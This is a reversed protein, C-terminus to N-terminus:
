GRSRRRRGALLGLAALGLVATSPEPVAALTLVQLRGTGTLLGPLTAASYTGPQIASGDVLLSLVTEPDGDVPFNLFVQGRNAGASVLTLGADDAIALPHDLELVTNTAAARVEVPGTGLTSGELVHLLGAVARTGGTYTNSTSALLLAGAGAKVLMNSTNTATGNTVAGTITTTNTVTLSKVATGFFQLGGQVEIPESGGFGADGGLSIPVLLANVGTLPVSGRISGANVNTTAGRGLGTGSALVVTPGVAGSGKALQVGGAFAASDAALVVTGDGALTTRTAGTLPVTVSLTAGAAVDASNFAAAGAPALEVTGANAADGVTLAAASVPNEVRLTAGTAAALGGSGTLPGRGAAVVFSGTARVTGGALTVGNAPDGLAADAGVALTGASATVGGTFTNAGSLVLTGPGTKNLGATGAVVATITATDGANTVLVNAAGAGGDLTLPNAATGAVTYGGVDFRLGRNVTIPATLTVTGAPATAFLAQNAASWVVPTAGNRWNTSANDWNGSGGVWGLKPIDVTVDFSLTTSAKLALTTNTTGAWTAAVAPDGGGVLLRFNGGSNLQGILYSQEAAGLTLTYTDTKSAATGNSTFAGTGILTRTPFQAGIGDPAADVQFKPATSDGPTISTATDDTLYFNVSGAKTFSQNSEVLTLTLPGNFATVTGGFNFSSGSYDLVGFSGFTGNGTGEINFFNTGNTGSRPGGTQITANNTAKSSFPAAEALRAAPGAGGLVVGAVAAGCVGSRLTRRMM